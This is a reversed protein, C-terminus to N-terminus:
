GDLGFLALGATGPQIFLGMTCQSNRYNTLRFAVFGFWHHSVVCDALNPLISVLGARLREAAASPDSDMRRGGLLIRKGDPSPWFYYGLQLSESYM